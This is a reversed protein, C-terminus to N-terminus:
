DHHTSVLVMVEDEFAGMVSGIDNGNDDLVASIHTIPLVKNDQKDKIYVKEM